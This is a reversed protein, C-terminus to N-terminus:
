AVPWHPVLPAVQLGHPLPSVQELPDHLQPPPDHVPQQLPPLQRARAFSLLVEHPAPPAVHSCHPAFSSHLLAVPCHTQSEVEHGLPHQLLRVHTAYAESVLPEHPWLPAVQVPQPALWSHLVAVPWHMQLALV